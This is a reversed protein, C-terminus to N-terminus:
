RDLSALLRFGERVFLSIHGGVYAVHLGDAGADATRGHDQGVVAM